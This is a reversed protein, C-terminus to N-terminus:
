RALKVLSNLLVNAGKEIDQWHTWEDPAHSVGNISPVFIMGADTVKAMHQADHGAGSPMHEHPYGLAKTQEAILSIIDNSMPQPELWSMQEFEFMLNHKRAIASLVKRCSDALARMVDGDVDRGVLTFEVEGPVTHAHGPKLDVKGVTLRSKDSGEEAIIRPIENAFNALGMFADSRMNM